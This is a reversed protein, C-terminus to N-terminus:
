CHILRGFDIGTADWEILRFPYVNVVDTAAYRTQWGQPGYIHKHGHLLLRPHFRRMLSLFAKFGLHAADPGDHIGAAPAHTILIDLYRGFRARNWLLRLALAVVRVRMEQQSYQYPANPHYRLCGELGAILLGTNRLHVTSRDLDRLGGPGALATAGEEHIDHNGHVYFAHPPDLNTVLFELYPYPLDGCNLLVDISGVLNKVRPQYLIRAVTDSVALIRLPRSGPFVPQSKM